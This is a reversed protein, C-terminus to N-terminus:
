KIHNPSEWPFVNVTSLAPGSSTGFKGGLLYGVYTELVAQNYIKLERFEDRMIFVTEWM